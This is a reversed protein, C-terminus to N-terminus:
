QAEVNVIKTKAWFRKMRQSFGDALSYMVPVIVLTLFTAFALGFIVATAMSSWWQSSDSGFIWKWNKFDFTVGTAMPTLGLITTTATLLVPRFRVIGARVIAERKTMGRERLKITYDLLVIANNVVVGALSIVGVGTMIIGFPLRTITLGILVGVLSLLVSFIIVLPTVFSRFQLLLVMIISFVAIMFTRSLFEQAKQQEEMEGTYRVYYGPPLPYDSLANQVEALVETSLRGEVDSFVTVVRDQDKRTIGALGTTVEVSAISSLPVLDGEDLVFHLDEISEISNRHDKDLRVTIDYEDKGDRYYGTESGTIATRILNGVMGTNVGLYTARDRDINVQVQPKDGDFDSQLNVVGPIDKIIKKFDESIRALSDLNEGVIEVNVPNGTPPGEELKKVIIDAGSYDKVAQRIEEMTEVSTQSREQRDIMDISIRGKYAPGGSPGLDFDALSVGSAAVYTKIDPWEPLKEELRQLMADTTEIRTGSPLEFNAFVKQPDIEPFFELGTGLFGYIGIAMILTLFAISVTLIRRDLAFELTKRYQQIFWNDQKKVIKGRKKKKLKMFTACVVPNITLGVFLSSTLTIILTIPLYKMFEGMIDPWFIMPYFACLTTATSAIVAWAVEGVGRAAAETPKKGEEIFRYINEVIVIANDVLMGLALILSFLIIMNLTYGLLDIVIYSLFMSLPIAIAVFLSTRLGLFFMLVSVVLVLGTLIGNELDEVMMKIDKSQDGSFSIETTAPLHPQMEAVIERVRDAIRILNEGTRKSVSLTICDIGEMRATSSVDKYGFRVDAVDKVYVPFHDDAKVIFSGIEEPDSVEGPVRLLYSYNGIDVNGGPINLNENLIALQVDLLGVKYHRLKEPNVNVQVERELGGSLNVELVGPIQELRDQIDEAVKKLKILDYKGSINVVIIPFADFSLETIIVDEADDPLEPKALDVKERVKNLIDDVDEEPDFELSISSVGEGSFSRMEKINDIDTLEKELKQTILSEMDQPSTGFYHTTVIVFPITIDPSSERPLTRYSYAGAIFIILILAFIAQKNKLTYDSLKM